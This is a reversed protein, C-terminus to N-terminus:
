RGIADTPVARAYPTARLIPGQWGHARVASFVRVDLGVAEPTQSAGRSSGTGRVRVRMM